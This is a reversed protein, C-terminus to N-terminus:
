TADEKSLLYHLTHEPNDLFHKILSFHETEQYPTLVVGGESLVYVEAGPCSILIPSHTAIIFQCHMNALEHIRALLAFQRSPSLAAEPEDLFFISGGQFRNVLLSLFSEGHSQQHLSKGGYHRMFNQGDDLGSDKLHEVETAVNYYSEARLFFGDSPFPISRSIKMNKYLSSHTENTSFNFNRTGGEPNFGCCVAMAELLTSKGTGNEGVFFTVPAHFTFSKMHRIAPIDCLYEEELEGEIRFGRLYPFNKVM